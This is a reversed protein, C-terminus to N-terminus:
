TCMHNVCTAGADGCDSNTCCNGAYCTNPYGVTACCIDDPNAPCVQGPSPCRNLICDGSTPNCIFGPGLQSLCQADTVCSGCVNYMSVGCLQRNINDTGGDVDICDQHTRCGPRCVGGNDDDCIWHHGPTGGYAEFCPIDDSGYCESVTGCYIDCPRCAGSNCLGRSGGALTCAAGAVCTARDSVSSDNAGNTTRSCGVALLLCFVGRM